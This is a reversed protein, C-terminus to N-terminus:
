GQKPYGPANKVDDIQRLHAEGHNAYTELLSDVSIEGSEPHKGKRGWEDDSLSELLVVWRTHLGSIIDLSADLNTETTDSREAWTEQNYPKITPNDETLKMRIFANMHSDAVHHVNQRISWDKPSPRFDLQERQLGAVSRQLQEPFKKIRDILQPRDEPSHM